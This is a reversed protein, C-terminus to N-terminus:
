VLSNSVQLKKGVRIGFRIGMSAACCVADIIDADIETVHKCVAICKVSESVILRFPTSDLVVAQEAEITRELAKLLVAKKHAKQVLEEYEEDCVKLAEALTM